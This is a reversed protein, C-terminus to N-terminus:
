ADLRRWLPRPLLRLVPAVLRFAAPVWVTTDGRALGRAVAAGVQDPTSSLPTATMGATMRGHVFGPRVVVVDVGTGHLDDGLGQAFSDLGAKSAGYVYSSRRARIAAASSLVVITGHRQSRLLEALALLAEVVGTLNITLVRAAAAPDGAADRGLVGAAALVLDVDADAVAEALAVGSGPLTADWPLCVRRTGPPLVVDAMDGRGALLVEAGPQLDLAHLIALGLESTGGLLLVRGWRGTGDRM